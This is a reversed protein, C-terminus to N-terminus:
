WNYCVHILLIKRSHFVTKNDDFVNMCTVTKNDDFVNMCTHM